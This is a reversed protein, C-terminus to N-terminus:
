EAFREKTHNVQSDTVAHSHATMDEQKHLAVILGTM